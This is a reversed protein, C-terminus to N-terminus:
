AAAEKSRGTQITSCQVYTPRWLKTLAGEQLALSYNVGNTSFGVKELGMTAFSSGPLSEQGPRRICPVHMTTAGRDRAENAITALVASDVGRAMVHASLMFHQLTWTTDGRHFVAMGVLSNEEFRDELRIWWVECRPNTSAKEATEETLVRGTLDVMETTSLSARLSVLDGPSASGISVQTELTELYNEVSELIPSASNSATWPELHTLPPESELFLRDSEFSMHTSVQHVLDMPANFQLVEVAPLTQAVWTAESTSSDAYVVQEPTVNLSDRICM